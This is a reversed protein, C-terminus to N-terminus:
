SVLTQHGDIVVNTPAGFELSATTAGHTLTFKLVREHYNIIFVLSEWQEPLHNTV